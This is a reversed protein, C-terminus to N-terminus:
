QPSRPSAPPTDTGEKKKDSFFPDLITFPLLLTDKVINILGEGIASPALPVVTPDSFPGTVKVPVTFLTAYKGGFVRGLLPIHSIIADLTKFPAILVTFDTEFSVLDMEGRAFLNLGKGRVVAKNIILRNDKVEAEFDLNSYPFGEKEMDPLNDSTFLDTLNVVSFIKSLLTMRMIRGQDSHITLGGSQWKGTTGHVEGGVRFSGEIIDQDIGLCPLIDEFLPLPDCNTAVKFSSDELTSPSNWVGNFGLCCLDATDVVVKTEKDPYLEVRGALPRWHFVTKEAGDKAKGGGSQFHAIDFDITGLMSWDSESGDCAEIQMQELMSLDDLFDDITAKSFVPAALNFDVMLGDVEPTVTGHTTLLEGGGFDLDLKKVLLEDGNGQLRLTGVRIFETKDGWYWRFNEARLWGEFLSATSNNPVTMSFDGLLDGILLDKDAMLAGVTAGRLSGHWQASFTEPKKDLLDLDLSGKESGNVFDLRMVLPDDERSHIDFAMAPRASEKGEAEIMGSLRLDDEAWDLRMRELRAPTKPMLSPPLWGKAKIWQGAEEGIMGSLDVGGSWAQLHHHQFDGRALLPHSAISNVSETLQLTTDTLIASAAGTVIEEPLLPSRWRLNKTTMPLSYQWQGPDFFPGALTAGKGLTITGDVATLVPQLHRRLAPYGDIGQLFAGADITAAFKSIALEVPGKGWHVVGNSGSIRQPGLGAAVNQWRVNGADTDVELEGGRVTIPWPLRDYLITGNMEKVSVAVEVHHQHDGLSLHGSATGQPNSFRALEEQFSQHHVQQRLATTIDALDADIDLGLEFGFHDPALGVLLVGNRGVSNGLKASLGQGTLAGNKIMIPGSADFLDLEAHPVHIQASKVQANISMKRLHALDALPGDFLFSGSDAEGGRVIDCVLATIKDEPLFNLLGARIATLDLKKAALDIHWQDAVDVAPTRKVVGSLSLAPELVEFENITLSLAGGEKDISFDAFGCNIPIKGREAKYLLCPMDGIVDCRFRNVGEGRIRSKLNLVSDAAVVNLGTALRPGKHLIVGRCEMDASYRLSPLDIEGQISLEEVFPASGSIRFAFFDPFMEVTADVAAFSLAPIDVAEGTDIGPTAIVGDNIRVTLSPLQPVAGGVGIKKLNIRPQHLVVTRLGLPRDPFFSLWDPYLDTAPLSAKLLENDIDLDSVSVHPTPLWHWKIDAITVEGQLEHRLRTVVKGKIVEVHLLEPIVLFVIAPLMMMAALFIIIARKKAPIRM